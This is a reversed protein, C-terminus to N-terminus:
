PCGEELWKDIRTQELLSHARSVGRQSFVKVEWDTLRVFCRSCLNNRLRGTLQLPYECSVCFKSTRTVRVATM